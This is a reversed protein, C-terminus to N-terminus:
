FFIKLEFHTEQGMFHDLAFNKDSHYMWNHRLHLGANKAFDYDVGIGLVYGFQDIIGGNEPSLDIRQSGTMKELGARGVLLYKPTIQYAATIEDYFSKVFAKNTFDPIPSFHDSISSYTSLNLLILPKGFLTSKYKLLLEAVNFGKKYDTSIGNAVDSITLTEFTQMWVSKIRGYPGGAQYWPRFRSRAFANVRHQFTITDSVNEKEQSMALAFDIKLKSLSKSTKLIAGWRNNAIQEAEQAVNIFLLNAWEIENTYGGDVLAPNSNYISGDVSNFNKHINYYELTVPLKLKNIIFKTTIDAAFGQGKELMPTNVYSHGLEGSILLSKKKLEFDTSVIRINDAIGNIRDTDAKRHYYNLGNKLIFGGLLFGRKLQCAYTMSPFHSSSNAQVLSRNTRGMVAKYSLRLPNYTGDVIFGQLPSRGFGEPGINGSHQYYEEFRQFSIRHWDWSLREFYNDRAIPQGMTFKSIRAWIIEGAQIDMNVPRTTISGKFNLYSRSSQTKNLDNNTNGTFSHALSYGTTFKFKDSVKSEMVLELLPIGGFNNTGANALPYDQFSFNKSSTQMDEYSDKMNRYITLFRINGWLRINQNVDLGDGPNWWQSNRKNDNNSSTFNDLLDHKLQDYSETSPKQKVELSDIAKTVKGTGLLIGACLIYRINKKM